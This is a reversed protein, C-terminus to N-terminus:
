PDDDHELPLGRQGTCGRRPGRRGALGRPRGHGSPRGADDLPRQAHRGPACWGAPRPAVARTRHQRGRPRRLARPRWSRGTRDAGPAAPRPRRGAGDDHELRVQPGDRSHRRAPRPVLTRRQDLALGRRDRRRGRAPGDLAGRGHRAALREVRPPHIPAGDDDYRPQLAALLLLTWEHEGPLGGRRRARLRERLRVRDRRAMAGSRTTRPTSTIADTNLIVSTLKASLSQLGSSRGRRESGVGAAARGDAGGSPLVLARAGRSASRIAVLDVHGDLNMDGARLAWPMLGGIEGAATFGGGARGLFVHVGDWADAAALDPRGDSNWDAVIAKWAMGNGPFDLEVLEVGSFSADIRGPLDNLRPLITADGTLATVLDLRGDRDQDAVIPTLGASTALPLDARAGFGGAGDALRVSLSTTAGGTILDLWGDGDLDGLAPDSLASGATTLVAAPTLGLAGDGLLLDVDASADDATLADLDGDGDVDALTVFRRAAGPASSPSVAGAVFTHDGWPDLGSRFTILDGTGDFCVVDPFGDRDLDGVAVDLTAGSVPGLSGFGVFRGDGPNMLVHFYPEVADGVVVDVDGDRDLDGWALGAASSSFPGTAFADVVSWGGGGDGIAVFVGDSVSVVLADLIGDRSVDALAVDLAPPLSVSGAAHATLAGVGDNLLVRLGGSGGLAAVLDDDGDRDLDGTAV